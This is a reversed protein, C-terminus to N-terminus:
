SSKKSFIDCFYIIALIGLVLKVWVVSSLIAIAGFIMGLSFSFLKDMVFSMNNLKSM